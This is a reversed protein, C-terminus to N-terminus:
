VNCLMGLCLFQLSYLLPFYIFDCLKERNQHINKLMSITYTTQKPSQETTIMTFQSISYAIM